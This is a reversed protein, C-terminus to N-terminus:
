SAGFDRLLRRMWMWGAGFLGLGCLCCMWGAASGTLFAFSHAGLVEGGCLTIVPLAALLKVTARPMSFAQARLDELRREQEYLTRVVRLSEVLRSGLVESLRICM